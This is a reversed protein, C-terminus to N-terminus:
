RIDKVLGDVFARGDIASSYIQSVYDLYINATDADMAKDGFPVLFSSNGVIQAVTQTL